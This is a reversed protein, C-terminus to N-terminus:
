LRLDSVDGIERVSRTLSDGDRIHRTRAVAHTSPLARRELFNFGVWGLGYGVGRGLGSETADYIM